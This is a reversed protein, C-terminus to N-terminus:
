TLTDRYTLTQTHGHTRTDTHTQTDAHRHTQTDARRHTQVDKRINTRIPTSASAATSNDAWTRIKKIKAELNVLRLRKSCTAVDAALGQM